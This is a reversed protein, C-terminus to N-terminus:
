HTEVKKVQSATYGAKVQKVQSFPLVPLVLDVQKGTYAIKALPIQRGHHDVHQRLVRGPSHNRQTCAGPGAREIHTEGASLFWAVTRRPRGGFDQVMAFPRVTQQQDAARSSASEQKRLSGFLLNALPCGTSTGSRM